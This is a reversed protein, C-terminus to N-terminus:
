RRRREDQGEPLAPEQAVDVGFGGLLDHEVARDLRQRVQQVRVLSRRCTWGRPPSSAGPPASRRRYWRRPARRRPGRPFSSITGPRGEGFRTRLSPSRSESSKPAIQSLKWASEATVTKTPSGGEASASFSTRTVSSDSSAPM